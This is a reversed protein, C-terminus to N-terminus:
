SREALLYIARHRTALVPRDGDFAAVALEVIEGARRSEFGVVSAEVRLLTGLPITGLHRTQSSVHIWPQLRVNAALIWNALGLVFGPNALGERDARVLDQMAEPDRTTTATEATARWEIDIAGLRGHPMAELAARSAEPRHERAPALADGRRIPARPVKALAEREAPAQLRSAPDAITTADPDNRAVLGEACLEGEQDLVRGRYAAEGIPEVEVRFATGEYLPRRLALSAVGQELWDRGWAILAPEVLYAYVVVGPVLGGRFGFRQAVDDAHIRNESATAPNFAIGRVEAPLM